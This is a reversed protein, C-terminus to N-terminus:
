EQDVENHSIKFQAMCVDILLHMSLISIYEIQDIM